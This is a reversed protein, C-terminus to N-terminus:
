APLRSPRFARAALWTLTAFVLLVMGQAIAFPPESQTPAIANLSPVKMFVQVVAVFVLLYLALMTAIAYLRRWGGALSRVYLAYAAPLLLLLSVVGFIHSPLVGSFPFLFGTASTAIATVLYLGTWGGSVEGRLLALAVPVGAAIAILSLWTHFGVLTTPDFM